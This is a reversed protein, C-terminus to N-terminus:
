IKIYDYFLIEPFIRFSIENGIVGFVFNENRFDQKIAIFDEISKKLEDETENYNRNLNNRFM